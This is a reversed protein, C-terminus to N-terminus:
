RAQFLELLESGDLARDYIRGSFMLAPAGGNEDGGILFDSDDFDVAFALEFQLAGDVYFRKSTGDWTGALHVWTAPQVPTDALDVRKSNVNTTTFAPEGTDSYELQWSNGSGTGFMKSLPASPFPDELWFWGAVTFGQTSDFFGDSGDVRLHSDEDFVMAMGIQGEVLAPCPANGSVSVCAAHRANGSVDETWGDDTTDLPYWAILSPDNPIPPIAADPPAADVGPGVPTADTGPQGPAGDSPPVPGASADPAPGGLTVEGCGAALGAMCLLTLWDLRRLM